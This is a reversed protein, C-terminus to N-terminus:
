MLCVLVMLVPLAGAIVRTAHWLTEGDPHAGCHPCAANQPSVQGCLYCTDPPSWDM